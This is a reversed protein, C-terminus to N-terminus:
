PGRDYLPNQAFYPASQPIKAEGTGIGQVLNFRKERAKRVTQPTTQM